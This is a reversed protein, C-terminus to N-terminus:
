KFPYLSSQIDSQQPEIVSKLNQKRTSNKGAERSTILEQGKSTVSKQCSDLEPDGDAPVGMEGNTDPEGTPLNDRKAVSLQCSSKVLDGDDPM